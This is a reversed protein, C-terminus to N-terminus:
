ENSQHQSFAHTNCAVISSRRNMIHTHTYAAIRIEIHIGTKKCIKTLPMFNTFLFLLLRARLSGVTPFELCNHKTRKTSM